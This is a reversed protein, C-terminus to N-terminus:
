PKLRRKFLRKWSASQREFTALHHEYVITQAVSKQFSILASFIYDNELTRKQGFLFPVDYKNYDVTILKKEAKRIVPNTVSLELVGSRVREDDLLVENYLDQSLSLITEATHVSIDDKAARSRDNQYYDIASLRQLDQQYMEDGFSTLTDHQKLPSVFLSESLEVYRPITREPPSKPREISSDRQKDL